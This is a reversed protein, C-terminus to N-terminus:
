SLPILYPSDISITVTSRFQVGDLRLHRSRRETQPDPVQGFQRFDRRVRNRAKLAAFLQALAGDVGDAGGEFGRADLESVAILRAHPQPLGARIAFKVSADMDGELLLETMRNMTPLDRCGVFPLRVVDKQPSQPLM